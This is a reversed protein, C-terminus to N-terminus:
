NHDCKESGFIFKLTNFNRGHDSRQKMYYRSYGIILFLVFSIQLYYIIQHLKREDEKKLKDNEKLYKMQNYTIYMSILICFTIMTFFPGQKTFLLFFLYVLSTTTLIQVPSMPKDNTLDLAFYIILFLVLHKGFINHTLFKQTNCGLTEAIFNGAVALLILFTGKLINTINESSLNNSFTM